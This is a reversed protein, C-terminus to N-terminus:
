KQQRALLSFLEVLICISHPIASLVDIGGKFHTYKPEAAQYACGGDHACVSFMPKAAEMISLFIDSSVRFHSAFDRAERCAHDLEDPAASLNELKKPLWTGLDIGHIPKSKEEQEEGLWWFGTEASSLYFGFLGLGEDGSGVEQSLSQVHTVVAADKVIAADCDGHANKHKM